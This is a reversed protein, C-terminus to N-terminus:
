SSTLSQSLPPHAACLQSAMSSLVAEMGDNPSRKSVWPRQKQKLSIGATAPHFLFRLALTPQPSIRPFQLVNSSPVEHHKQIYLSHRSARLNVRNVVGWHCKWLEQHHHCANMLLLHNQSTVLELAWSLTSFSRFSCQLGLVWSASAFPGDPSCLSLEM